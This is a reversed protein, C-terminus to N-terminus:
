RPKPRALTATISVLGPSSLAEIRGADVRIQQSKLADVWSLWQAFPVAGFVVVVQDADVADIRVLARGLGASDAAGQVLTRLDTRSASPPPASRLRQLEDAQQDLTNAQTRLTAISARLQTRARWTSQVLVVYLAVGLVIAMVLRFRRERPSRSEWLTQVRKKM